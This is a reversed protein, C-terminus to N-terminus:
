LVVWVFSLGIGILALVLALLSLTQAAKLTEGVGLDALLHKCGVMFHYILGALALFVGLRLCTLQQWGQVLASFSASSALSAQLVYLLFPILMFIVVGSIRHLISVIAVPNKLNVTIVQGLDLNVPRKSKM